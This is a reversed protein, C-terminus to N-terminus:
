LRDSVFLKGWLCTQLAPAHNRHGLRGYLSYKGETAESSHTPFLQSSKDVDGMTAACDPLCLFASAKKLVLIKIQKNKLNFFFLVKLTFTQKEANQNKLNFTESVFQCM